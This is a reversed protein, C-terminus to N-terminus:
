QLSYYYNKHTKTAWETSIIDLKQYLLKTQLNTPIWQPLLIIIIIYTNQQCMKTMLKRYMQFFLYISKWIKHNTYHLLHSRVYTRYLWYNRLSCYVVLFFFANANRKDNCIFLITFVYVAYLTWTRKTSWWSM